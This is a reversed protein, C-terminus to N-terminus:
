PQEIRWLPLPYDGDSTARQLRDAVAPRDSAYTLGVWDGESAHCRIRWGHQNRGQLALVPLMCEAGHDAYHECLWAAVDAIFADYCQPQFGWLNLSVQASAPLARTHQGPVLPGNASPVIGVVEEIGVLHQAADMRCIARNVPGHPSLTRELQFTVLAGETEGRSLLCGLAQIGQPSYWDDANVVGCPRTMGRMACAVAHATGWPKSRVTPIRLGPLPERIDQVVYRVPIAKSIRRGVMEHVVDCNEQRVVLVVESFGSRIADFVTFDLITEGHPGVQAIQKDGGFRSGMGAALIVLAPRDCAVLETCDSQTMDGRTEPQPASTPPLVAVTTKKCLNLKQELIPAASLLNRALALQARARILNHHEHKIRFYTDGNLYDTLFRIGCEFTIVAGALPLLRCEAPQLAAGRGAIWGTALRLLLEQDPVMASPPGDEAERCSGTRVLDGFDYLPLGPMLTDLDIVCRPESGDSSFLLNNIKTDNHTPVNALGGIARAEELVGALWDQKLAWELDQTVSQRRNAVDAEAALGLRKLRDPTDHFRPIVTGLPGGPMTSLHGLFSAFAQAALFAQNGDGIKEITVTDSVFPYARWYWGDEDVQWDSGDRTPIL